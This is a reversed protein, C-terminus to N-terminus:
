VVADLGCVIMAKWIKAFDYGGVNMMEDCYRGM